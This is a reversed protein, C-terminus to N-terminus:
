SHCECTDPQLGTESTTMCPCTSLGLIATCHVNSPAKSAIQRWGQKCFHLQCTLVGLLKSGLLKSFAFAKLLRGDLHHKFLYNSVVPYWAITVASWCIQVAWEALLLIYYVLTLLSSVCSHDYHGASRLPEPPFVALVQQEGITGQLRPQNEASAGYWWSVDACCALSM